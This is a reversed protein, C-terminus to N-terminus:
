SRNGRYLLDLFAYMLLAGAIQPRNDKNKRGRKGNSTRKKVTKAVRESEREERRTSLSHNGEGGVSKV